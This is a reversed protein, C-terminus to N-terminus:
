QTEKSANDRRKIESRKVMGVPMNDSDLFVYNEDSILIKDCKNLAEFLEKTDFSHPCYADFRWEYGCRLCPNPHQNYM